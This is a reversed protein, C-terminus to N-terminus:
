GSVLIRGHGLSMRVHSWEMTSAGSSQGSLDVSSSHNIHHSTSHSSHSHNNSLHTRASNSEFNVAPRIRVNRTSGESRILLGNSGYAPNMSIQDQPMHQSDISRKDPRLDSSVPLDSSSGASYYRSSSGRDCVSPIGPNKRKHSGRGNGGTLDAFGGDTWMQREYNSSSAHHGYNEQAPCITATNSSHLFFDHSPGPADPQYHLQEVTQGPPICGNSEPVSNWHSAFHVGDGSINEVPFFFSNDDATEAGGAILGFNAVAMLLTTLRLFLYGVGIVFCYSDWLDLTNNMWCDLKSKCNRNMLNGIMSLYWVLSYHSSWFKWPYDMQWSNCWAMWHNNSGILAYNNLCTMCNWGHM